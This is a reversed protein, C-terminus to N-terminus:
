ERSSMVQPLHRCRESEKLRHRISLYAVKYAPRRYIDESTMVESLNLLYSRRKYNQTRHDVWLNLKNNNNGKEKVCIRKNQTM